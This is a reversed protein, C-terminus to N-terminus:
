SYGPCQAWKRDAKQILMYAIESKKGESEYSVKRSDEKGIMNNSVVSEKLEAFLMEGEISRIGNGNGEHVEEFGDSGMGVHGNM